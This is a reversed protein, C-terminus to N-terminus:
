SRYDANISIYEHTLDCTWITAEEEGSDIDVTINIYPNQMYEDAQEEKYDPNLAGNVAVLCDGLWIDVKDPNIPVRAKGIAGAIRGWNPDHAAIATKVLPSNAISLGIKRADDFTKTGKINITVFKSIGEGDKVLLISLEKMVEILDKKFDALAKDTIKSIKDHKAQGTAFVFCTDSTSTDGDVTICNMSVQVGENVIEQLVNAPIKADTFIYALTTAMNPAIMGSGKIIGNITIRSGNISTIKTVGKAFTDTTVFAKAVAEWKNSVLNEYLGPICALMPERKLHEGIIGTSSVFVDEMSCGILQSAADATMLVTEYGKAGTAVNSYGANVILARATGRPLIKKGWKIPEGPFQNQTMVGAVTTGKEFVCLFVDDRNRYRMGSCCTAMKVGAIEPMSPFPVAFQSTKSM